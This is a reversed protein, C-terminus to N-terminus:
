PARRGLFSPRRLLSAVVTALGLLYLAALVRFNTPRFRWTITHSGPGVSVARLLYNARLATAPTGDVEVEWGPYTVENLVVLGRSPADVTIEIEDPEYRTVRAPVLPTLGATFIDREAPPVRAADEPEMVAFTRPADGNDGDRLVDLVRNTEVIQVSAYFAALPVPHRAEYVGGGRDIFHTAPPAKKVYCAELGYRFHPRHLLWKVNFVELLQPDRDLRKLIDVYRAQSLADTAPYGRFDRVGRRPGVREGMVFEDYLRWQVSVDGLRALVKGDDTHLRRVEKAPPSGPTHMFFPPDNAVLVVAAALPIAVFRKPVLVLAAVLAAGFVAFWITWGPTRPRPPQLYVPRTEVLVICVILVVAAVALARWREPARWSRAADVLAAAGYGSAAAAGLVLVLKYRGPVRFLSFGPVHDVLWPLLPTGAGFALLLGFLGVATFRLAAGRDHLPRLAIACGCLMVVLIGVYAELKGNTPALLGAWTEPGPLPNDLAWGAGRQGQRVALPILESTPLALILYLSAAVAVAFAFALALRRAYAVLEARGLKHRDLLAAGVGFLAYPGIFIAAYLVAPPSGALGILALGGGLQAGRRWDPRACARDFLLCVLPAWALPWLIISGKHLLFASSALVTMGGIAAPGRGLGRSRLFLHMMAAAIVHHALYEVQAIWWSSGFVAGWLEFGWHVPYYRPINVDAALSYGGHDYPSWLSFRGESLDRALFELDPGVSDIVDWGLGTPTRGQHWLERYIWAVALSYVLPAWWWEGKVALHARIRTVWATM